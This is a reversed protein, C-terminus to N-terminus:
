RSNAAVYKEGQCTIHGSVSAATTGRRRSASMGTTARDAVAILTSTHAVQAGARNAGGPVASQSGICM